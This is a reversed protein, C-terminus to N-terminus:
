GPVHSAEERLLDFPSPAGGAEEGGGPVPKPRHRRRVREGPIYDRTVRSPAIWPLGWVARAGEVVRSMVPTVSLESPTRMSYAMGDYDSAPKPSMTRPSLNAAASSPRIEYVHAPLTAYEPDAHPTPLPGDPPLPTRALPPTDEPGLPPTRTLVPAPMPALVRASPAPTHALVRASPAPTHTLVVAPEPM